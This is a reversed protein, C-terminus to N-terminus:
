HHTEQGEKRRHKQELELNELIPVIEYPDLGDEKLQMLGSEIAMEAMEGQLSSLAEYGLMIAHRECETCNRRLMKITNDLHKDTMNCIRIKEGKRTTWIETQERIM